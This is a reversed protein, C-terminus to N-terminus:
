EGPEYDHAPSPQSGRSPGLHQLHSRFRHATLGPSRVSHSVMAALDPASGGLAAQAGAMIFIEAPPVPRNTGTTAAMARRNNITNQIRDEVSLSESGRTLESHTALLRTLQMTLSGETERLIALTDLLHAMQTWAAADHHAPSPLTPKISRSHQGLAHTQAYTLCEGIDQLGKPDQIGWKAVQEQVKQGLQDSDGATIAHKQGVHVFVLRWREAEQTMGDDHYRIDHTIAATRHRGVHDYGKTAYWPNAM